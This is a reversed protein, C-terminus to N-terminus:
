FKHVSFFFVTNSVIPVFRNTKFKTVNRERLLGIVLAEGDNMRERNTPQIEHVTFTGLFNITECLIYAVYLIIFARGDGCGYLLSDEPAM